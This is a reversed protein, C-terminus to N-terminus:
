HLLRQFMFWIDFHSNYEKMLTFHSMNSFICDIIVMQDDKVVYGNEFYLQLRNDYVTRWWDAKEKKILFFGGAVSVQHPPIPTAPLGLENKIQILIYLGKMYESDNNVRAYYIKEPNLENLKRENPWAALEDVTMDCYRGRFYGIDCWGYWCNTDACEKEFYGNEITQCVFHIKESWLMNVQWETMTNLSFNRTHNQIWHDKYKYGCFEEMPKIVILIRPNNDAYPKVYHKSNEDTYIVLYYNNVNSLMNHMWAAYTNEDFKTKFIYWCTSLILPM